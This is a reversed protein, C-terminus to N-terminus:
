RKFPIWNDKHLDEPIDIPPETLQLNYFIKFNDFIVYTVPKKTDSYKEVAYIICKRRFNYPKGSITKVTGFQMNYFNGGDAAAALDKEILKIELGKSDHDSYLRGIEPQYSDAALNNYRGLQVTRYKVEARMLTLLAYESSFLKKSSLLQYFREYLASIFNTKKSIFSLLNEPNSSTLSFTQINKNSFSEASLLFPATHDAAASQQNKLETHLAISHEATKVACIHIGNRSFINWVGAQPTDQLSFNITKKRYFFDSWKKLIGLKKEINLNEDFGATLVALSKQPTFSVRLSINDQLHPLFDRTFSFGTMSSLGYASYEMYDRSGPSIAEALECFASYADKQQLSIDLQVKQRNAAISVPTNAMLINLASRYKSYPILNLDINLTGSDEHLSLMINGSRMAEVTPYFFNGKLGAATLISLSSGSNIWFIIDASYDNTIIRRYATLLNKKKHRSWFDPTEATIFFNHFFVTHETLMNNSFLKKIETEPLVSNNYKIIFVSEPTGFLKTPPIVTWISRQLAGQLRITKLAAKLQGAIPKGKASFSSNEPLIDIFQKLDPLTNLLDKRGTTSMIFYSDTKRFISDVTVAKSPSDASFVSTSIILFLFLKATSKRV